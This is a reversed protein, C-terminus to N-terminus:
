SEIAPALIVHCSIDVVTGVAVRFICLVLTSPLNPTVAFVM